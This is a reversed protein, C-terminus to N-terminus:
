QRLGNIDYQSLFDWILRNINAGDFDNGFWDHGGGLIKYHLLSVGNTGGEFIYRKITNESDELTTTQPIPVTQNHAKWFDLIDSVGLMWGEWGEYPRESDGTGNFIIMATPHSATCNDVTANWMLASVPAGAAIRESLHCALSYVFGGGNSYGTAYIRSEDIAWNAALDDLMAAVFGFDDATSKGGSEPLMTNWHADNAEGLTGQPYVLIFSEQDALSRMDALTMQANASMDGGHFNLMVPLDTTGDYSTPLYLLFERTVENHVITQTSLGVTPPNPEQGIDTEPQGEDTAIPTTDASVSSDTNSVDAEVQPEGSDKSCAIFSICILCCLLLLVSGKM